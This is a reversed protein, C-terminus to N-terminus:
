PNRNPCSREAGLIQAQCPENIKQNTAEIPGNRIDPYRLGNTVAAYDKGLCAAFRALPERPDHPLHCSHM